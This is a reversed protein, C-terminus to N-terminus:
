QPPQQQRQVPKLGGDPSWTHTVQSAGGGGGMVSSSGRKGGFESPIRDSIDIGEDQASQAAHDWYAKRNSSTTSLMQQAQKYTIVGGALVKQAIAETAQDLDRAKVHAEILDRGTRAGKISGVTMAMHNSLFQMSQPGNLMKDGGYLWNTKGTKEVEDLISKQSIHMMDMQRAAEVQKTVNASGKAAKQKEMDLRAWGQAETVDDHRSQRDDKKRQEAQATDRQQRELKRDEELANAKREVEALQQALIEMHKDFEDKRQQDEARRQEDRIKAEAEQAKQHAAMDQERKLAIADSMQKMQMLQRAKEQQDRIQIMHQEASGPTIMGGLANVIKQFRGLQSGPQVRSNGAMGGSPDLTVKGPPISPLPGGLVPPVGPQLVPPMGPLTGGGIGPDGYQPPQSPVPMGQSAGQGQGGLLMAVIQQISGSM